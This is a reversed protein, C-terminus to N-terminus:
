LVVVRYGCPWSYTLSKRFTLRPLRSGNSKVILSAKQAWHFHHVMFAERNHLVSTKKEINKNLCPTQYKSYRGCSRPVVQVACIPEHRPMAVITAAAM